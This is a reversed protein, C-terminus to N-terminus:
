VVRGYLEKKKYLGRIQVLKYLNRGMCVNVKYLDWYDKNPKYLNEERKCEAVRMKKCLGGLLSTYIRVSINSLKYLKQMFVQVFIQVHGFKETDKCECIFIVMVFSM